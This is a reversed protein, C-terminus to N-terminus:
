STRGFASAKAGNKLNQCLKKSKLDRAIVAIVAIWGGTM